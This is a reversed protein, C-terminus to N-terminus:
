EGLVTASISMFAFNKCYNGGDRLPTFEKLIGPYANHEPNGGVCGVEEFFEGSNTSLRCSESNDINVHLLCVRLTIKEVFTIIIFCAERSFKFFFSSLRRLKCTSKCTSM